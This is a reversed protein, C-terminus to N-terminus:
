RGDDDRELLWVISAAVVACVVVLVIDGVM